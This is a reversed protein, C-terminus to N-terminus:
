IFLPTEDDDNSGSDKHAEEIIGSMKNLNESSVVKIDPHEIEEEIGFLIKSAFIKAQKLKMKWESILRM